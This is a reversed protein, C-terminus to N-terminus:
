TLIPSTGTSITSIFYYVKVDEGHNGKTNALGSLREKLIPDAATRALRAGNGSV